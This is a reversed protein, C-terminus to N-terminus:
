PSASGHAEGAVARISVGGFVTTTEVTLTPAGADDPETVDDSVGGFIARATSEVRWAAPVKVDIGGALTGIALHAGPALTAQRLDVSIGGFWALM